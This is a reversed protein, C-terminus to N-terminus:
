GVDVSKGQVVSKRDTPMAPPLARGARAIVADRRDRVEIGILLPSAARMSDLLALARRADGGSAVLVVRSDGALRRMDSRLRRASEDLMGALRQSAGATREM